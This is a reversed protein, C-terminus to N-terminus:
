VYSYIGLMFALVSLTLGIGSMIMLPVKNSSDLLRPVNFSYGGIILGIAGLAIAAIQSADLIIPIIAIVGVILAIVAFISRNVKMKPIYIEELKWDCKECFIADEANDFGCKSCKM